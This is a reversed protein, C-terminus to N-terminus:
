GQEHRNASKASVISSASQPLNVDVECLSGRMVRGVYVSYDLYM